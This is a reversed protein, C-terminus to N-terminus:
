DSKDTKHRKNLAAAFHKVPAPNVVSVPYGPQHLFVAITEGYRGTAELCVSVTLPTQQSLWDSLAQHGSAHNSFCQYLTKGGSWVLAVDLHAKSVDIGVTTMEMAGKRSSKERAHPCGNGKDNLTM